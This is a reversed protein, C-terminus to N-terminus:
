RRLLPLVRDRSETLMRRVLPWPGPVWAGGRRASRHEGPPADIRAHLGLDELAVPATVSFSGTDHARAEHRAGNLTLLLRDGAGFVRPVDVHVAPARLDPIRVDRSYLTVAAVGSRESCTANRRTISALSMWRVDGLEAARAAATRVPELGDRLDGHHGYLVLPQRLFARFVLDDLDNALSYRSVVPLGGGALQAPWWGGLRWHRQDAFSDWPFPRSAALGLFGYRFLAGLTYAGCAGHPPCMIREVRIGARREFRAVRMTASLIIRDADAASCPRDLERLVHDNGHVVLSLQRPFERFLAAARHGPTVLDLPITAIAVHYGCERADRALESFQVHGYSRLRLNPDDIVICAQLPVPHQSVGGTIRRLFHVIPLLSWFRGATLHDRLYEHGALERPVAAAMERGGGATSVRAAWTPSGEATALVEWGHDVGLADPRGCGHEVLTQGHLTRDLATSGAMTVPLSSGARHPPGPRLELCPVPLREPAAEGPFAIVADAGEVDSWRRPTFRVPFAEELASWLEAYRRSAGPPVTAM